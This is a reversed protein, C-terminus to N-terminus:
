IKESMEELIKVTNNLETISATIEELSAIQDNFVANSDKIGQSIRNISDGITTLVENIKKISESTNISMNRIEKAVVQFGNGAEGARAAEISANLGLLNSKSAISEVFKLIDKTGDAYESTSQSIDAIDNNMHAVNQVDVSLENIAKLIESYAVTLNKSVNLLNKSRQLNKALLVTGVTEGNDNKLPVAYSRFPAGYIEKPVENVSVMNTKIAKEAAGGNPIVDGPETQLKLSDSSQNVLFKSKDTLAISVDDEFFYPLYPLVKRFALLIDEEIFDTGM